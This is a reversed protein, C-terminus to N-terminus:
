PYNCRRATITLYGATSSQRVQFQYEDTDIVVSYNFPLANEITYIEGDISLFRMEVPEAPDFRSLRGVEADDTSAGDANVVIANNAFGVTNDLATSLPTRVLLDNTELSTDCTRELAATQLLFALREADIGERLRQRTLALLEAVEGEPVNEQYNRELQGLTNAMRRVREEATEKAAILELIEGQATELDGRMRRVTEDNKAIGTEYAAYSVVVLLAALLGFKAIAGVAAHIKQRRRRAATTLIAM